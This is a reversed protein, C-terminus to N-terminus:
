FDSRSSLNFAVYVQAVSNKASGLLAKASNSNALEALGYNYRAGVQANGFNFGVGGSLGYDFSKLNDKNIQDVGTILGSYSINANLLYGAYGGAHLEVIEGIKFVALVPLDLYNLNYKIEQNVIGGYQAKSGKTSYLLELQLAFADTSLIQGFVGVNLGLRANQDNVNDIYLNSANLGGKVGARGFYQAAIEQSLALSFFTAIFAVQLFKSKINMNM